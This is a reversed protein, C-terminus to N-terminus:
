SGNVSVSASILGKASDTLNKSHTGVSRSLLVIVERFKSREVALEPWARCGEEALQSCVGGAPAPTNVSIPAFKACSLKTDLTKLPETARFASNILACSETSFM